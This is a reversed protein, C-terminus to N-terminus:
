DHSWKINLNLDNESRSQTTSLSKSQHHSVIPAYEKMVQSLITGHTISYM